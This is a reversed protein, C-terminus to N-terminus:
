LALSSILIDKNPILESYAKLEALARSSKNLQKLITITEIKAKPPLFKLNNNAEM